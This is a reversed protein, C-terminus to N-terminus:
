SHMDEDKYHVGYAALIAGALETMSLGGHEWFALFYNLRDFPAEADTGHLACITARIRLVDSENSQDRGQIAHWLKVRTVLVDCTAATGELYQKATLVASQASDPLCHVVRGLADVMFRQARIHQAPNDLDVAAAIIDFPDRRSMNTGLAVFIAPEKVTPERGFEVARCLM